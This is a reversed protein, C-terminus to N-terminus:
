ILKWNWDRLRPEQRKLGADLTNGVDDRNTEIEYDLNKDNWTEHSHSGSANMQRTEIEYDLNKDNWTVVRKGSHYVILTEIRPEQRKLNEFCSHYIM